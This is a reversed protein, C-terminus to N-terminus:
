TGGYAADGHVAWGLGAWIEKRSHTALDFPYTGTPDKGSGDIKIIVRATVSVHELVTPGGGLLAIKNSCVSWM